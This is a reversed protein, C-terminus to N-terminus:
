VSLARWRRQWAALLVLAIVILAMTLGWWLGVIGYGRHFCLFYGIPLGFLWYGAFNVWMAISTNGAGRLAGTLVTQAGDFLQFAAAIALLGVGASLVGTDTTFIRLINMPFLLFAAASCAMFGCGLGLAIYGSRRAALPDGRGIAQGVAVAAASSVGLPVMFSVSACNLAIQHAAMAVPSLRGALIAAAGFAGIEMLIQTAAPLGLALLRLLRRPDPKRLIGRVGQEHGREFWCIFLLLAVAMYVRALCTSLASGAVGLKPLGWNGYILLWNFLWNNLNASILAFMVPRVHGIGQLYRRFAAYLLLPLTGLGLIKLFPAALASVERNVGLLVFVPGMALFLATLPLAIFVASYVGQALSHHTDAKDGAGHAQSVLTDLGLLLGVGFIALSYYVASGVGTAAIAAPGLGGIMITDVVGMGMWGLEALAVPAALRLM